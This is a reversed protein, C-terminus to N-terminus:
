TTTLGGGDSGDEDTLSIFFASILTDVLANTTSELGVLLTDRVAPDCGIACTAGWRVLRSKLGRKAM